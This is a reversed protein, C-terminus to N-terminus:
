YLSLPNQAFSSNGPNVSNNKYQFPPSGPRHVRPGHGLPPTLTDPAPPLLRGPESVPHAWRNTLPLCRASQAPFPPLLHAAAPSSFFLPPRASVIEQASILYLLLFDIRISKLILIPNSILYLSEPPLFIQPFIGLFNCLIQSPLFPSKLSNQLV